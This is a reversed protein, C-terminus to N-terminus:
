RGSNATDINGVECAFRVLTNKREHHPDPVGVFTPYSLISCGNKTDALPESLLDLLPLRYIEPM